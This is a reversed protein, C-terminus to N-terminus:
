SSQELAPDEAEAHRESMFDGLGRMGDVNACIIRLAALLPVAVVMGIASWLWAWFTVSLFVVVTNLRLSRGVFYPTVFQGEFSTAAFYTLGVIPAMWVWDFSVLAVSSAIVVGCVAGLYPVYNFIFAIVGFVLPSPMGLLWMSVGIVVGLGANIVTITLLYKSLRREIAHAIQLARKKDEFRPIVHVLKEYFMDGSALIFFLLVLTFIFQAIIGPAVTLVSIAYNTQDVAVREVEESPGTLEDLREAADFVSGLATSLESLKIRVQLSIEPAREIWDTVPMSLAGLIALFGALLGLVIIFSTLGSPIGRRDAIRRIPSFVLALLFGLVVPVLFTQAYALVYVSAYIFLGIGAWRPISRFTRLGIGRVDSGGAADPDGEADSM